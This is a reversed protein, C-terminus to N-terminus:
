NSELDEEDNQLQIENYHFNGNWVQEGNENFLSGSGHKENNVWEGIYEITGTSEYYSTGQGHRVGDAWDGQYTFYGNPYYLSGIGNYKNVAFSGDYKISNSENDYYLKGNNVYENSINIDGKYLIKGNINVIADKLIDNDYIGEKIISNDVESFEKYSGVLINNVYNSEINPKGNKHFTKYFGDIKGDNNFISHRRLLGTDYFEKYDGILINNKNYEVINKIKQFTKNHDGILLINKEDYYFIGKKYKIRKAINKIYEVMEFLVLNKFNLINNDYILGNFSLLGNSFYENIEYSLSEQNYNLCEIFRIGNTYYITCIDNEILNGEFLKNGLEDIIIGNTPKGDIFNGDYCIKGDPYCFVGKGHWKNGDFGGRYKINGNDWYDMISKTGKTNGMDWYGEIKKSGNTAYYIGMGHRLSKEFDGIYSEGNLYIEKGKGHKMGDKFQGEYVKVFEEKFEDTNGVYNYSGNGHPLGDKFFGNYTFTSSWLKGYDDWIEVPNDTDTTKKIKGQYYCKEDEDNITFIHTSQNENVNKEDIFNYRTKKGFLM